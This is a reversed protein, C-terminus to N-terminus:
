RNCKSNFVKVEDKKGKKSCITKKKLIYSKSM